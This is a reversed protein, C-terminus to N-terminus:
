FSMFPGKNKEGCTKDKQKKNEVFTLCFEVIFVCLLFLIGTRVFIIVIDNDFFPVLVSSM